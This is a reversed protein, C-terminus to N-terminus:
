IKLVIRAQNIETFVSFSWSQRERDDNLDVNEIDVSQIKLQSCINGVAESINLLWTGLDNQPVPYIPYAPLNVHQQAFIAGNIDSVNQFLQFAWIDFSEQDTPTNLLGAAVTV